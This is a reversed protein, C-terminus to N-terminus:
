SIQGESNSANVLQCKCTKSHSITENESNLLHMKKKKAHYYGEIELCIYYILSIWHECNWNGNFHFIKKLFGWQNWNKQEGRVIEISIENCSFLPNWLLDPVLRPFNLAGWEGIASNEMFISTQQLRYVMVHPAINTLMSLQTIDHKIEPVM